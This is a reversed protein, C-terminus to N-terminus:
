QQRIRLADMIQKFAPNEYVTSKKELKRFTERLKLRDAADFYKVTVQGLRGALDDVKSMYMVEAKNYEETTRRCERRLQEVLSEGVLRKAMPSMALLVADVFPSYTEDWYMTQAIGESLLRRALGVGVLAGDAVGTHMMFGVESAPAKFTKAGLEALGAGATDSYTRITAQELVDLKGAAGVLLAHRWGVGLLGLAKAGGLSREINKITVDDNSITALRRPEAVLGPVTLARLGPWSGVFFTAPAIAIDIRGEVFNDVIRRPSAVNRGSAIRVRINGGAEACKGFAEAWKGIESQPHYGHAMLFESAPSQAAFLATIALAVFLQICNTKPTWM